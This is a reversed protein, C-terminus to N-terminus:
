SGSAAALQGSIDGRCLGDYYNQNAILQDGTLGASHNYYNAMLGANMTVTVAGQTISLWPVKGSQQFPGGLQGKPYDMYIKPTFPPTGSSLVSVLDKASSLTLCYVPAIASLFEPGEPTEEYVYFSSDFVPAYDQPLM